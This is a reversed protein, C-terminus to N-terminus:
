IGCCFIVIIGTVNCESFLTEYVEVEDVAEALLAQVNLVAFTSYLYFPKGYLGPRQQKFIVPSGAKLKILLAVIIIIPLFLLFLLLSILLDSVRKMENENRMEM